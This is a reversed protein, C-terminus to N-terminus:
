HTRKRGNNPLALLSPSTQPVCVCAVQQQVRDRQAAAASPCTPPPTIVPLQQSKAVCLEKSKTFKSIYDWPKPEHHSPSLPVILCCQVKSGNTQPSCCWTYPSCKPSLWNKVKYLAFLMNTFFYIFIVEATAATYGM